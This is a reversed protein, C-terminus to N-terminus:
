LRGRFLFCKSSRPTGTLLPEMEDCSKSCVVTALQRLYDTEVQRLTEVKGSLMRCLSSPKVPFPPVSGACLTPKQPDPTQFYIQARIVVNWTYRAVLQLWAENAISSPILLPSKIWQRDKGSSPKSAHDAKSRFCILSDNGVVDMTCIPVFCAHSALIEPLWEPGPGFTWVFLLLSESVFCKKQICRLRKLWRCRSPIVTRVSRRGFGPKSIRPALACSWCWSSAYLKSWELQMSINQNSSVTVSVQLPVHHFTLGDRRGSRCLPVLHRQLQLLDHWSCVQSHWLFRLKIMQGTIGRLFLVKKWGYTLWTDATWCIMRNHVLHHFIGCLFCCYFGVDIGGM